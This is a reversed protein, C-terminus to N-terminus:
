ASGFMPQFISNFPKFHYDLDFNSDLEKESRKGVLITPSPSDPM